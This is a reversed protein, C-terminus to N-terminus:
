VWPMWWFYMQSLNEISTTSSILKQVVGEVNLAHVSQNGYLDPHGKLRKEVRHLIVRSDMKEQKRSWEVLPDHVFSELIGLLADRNEIQTELTVECAKRFVGEVGTVGFADVINQTLRFRVREPVELLEGKDFLCAFDVHVCEGTVTDILLNEGHRDGLGVVHGVVSMVACTRTFATRAEFWQSPVAFQQAFWKHLIPPFHPLIQETFMVNKPTKHLDAREKIEKLQNTSLGFKSKAYLGDIVSRLTALNPVWEIIGSDDSLPLVTFTRISLKRLKGSPTKSLLRNIMASYEMMRSDKRTEDKAKCLFHHVTGASSRMTIRKPKQLSPIVTIEPQISEITVAAAFLAGTDTIPGHPLQIHLMDQTPLIIGTPFKARFGAIKSLTITRDGRQHSVPQSAIAILGHVLDGLEATLKAVTASAKGVSQLIEKMVKSRSLGEQGNTSNVVFYVYWLAQNPYALIVREIITRIRQLAHENRHGIRSVLQPLATMYIHPPIRQLVADVETHINKLVSQALAINRKSNTTSRTVHLHLVHATDLWRTLFKLVTKYVTRHGHCLAQGYSALMKPIYLDYHHLIRRELDEPTTNASTQKADLQALTTVYVSEIFSGLHFYAKEFPHLGIMETFYSEVEQPTKQNTDINWRAIRLLCKCLLEKGAPTASLIQMKGRLNELLAIAERRDGRAYLIKAHSLTSRADDLPSEASVASAQMVASLASPLMGFNRLITGYQMWISATENTKGLIGLIVRHTALVPEQYQPTIEIIKRSLSLHQILKETPQQKPKPAETRGRQERITGITQELDSLIHLQLLYPYTRDYSEMSAASIAPLLMDRVDRITGEVESLRQNANTPIEAADVLPAAALTEQAVTHMSLMVKALSGDFSQPADTCLTDLTDWKSLRWAGQIAFDRLVNRDEDSIAVSSASSAFSHLLNFQGLNRMCTMLSSQYCLNHPDRQLLIENCQLADQWKGSSEYDLAREEETTYSRLSSLGVIGDPEMLEAYVKQLLRVDHPSCWHTSAAEDARRPSTARLQRMYAEAYLVARAPAKISHAAEICVQLPIGGLFARVRSHKKKASALRKQETSDSRAAKAHGDFRSEERDSWRAISDILDFLMQVHETAIDANEMVAFIEKHIDDTDADNCYVVLMHVLYPFLFVCIKSDRKAVNRLSQFVQAYVGTTRACLNIFWLRLWSNFSMGRKYEPVNPSRNHVIKVEYTTQVFARLQAKVEDPLSNWWQSKKADLDALSVNPIDLCVRILSQIAFAARDHIKADSTSHLLRLLQNQLIYSSLHVPHLLDEMRVSEHANDTRVAIQSPAMAGVVGLCSAAYSAIEQTDRTAHLLTTIFPALTEKSLSRVEIQRQSIRAYTSRLYLLRCQASESRQAEICDAILVQISKKHLAKHKGKNFISSVEDSQPFLDLFQELEGANFQRVLRRVMELVTAQYKRDTEWLPCNCFGVLEVLLDRGKKRIIEDSLHSILVEWCQALDSLCVDPFEFPKLLQVKQLITSSLPGLLSLLLRLSLFGSTLAHKTHRKSGGIEERGVGLKGCIDDLIGFAYRSLMQAVCLAPDTSRQSSKRQPTPSITKDLTMLGECLGQQADAFPLYTCEAALAVMNEVILKENQRIFDMLNAKQSIIKNLNSLTDKTTHRKDVSSTVFSPCMISAVIPACYRHCVDAVSTDLRKALFSALDGEQNIAALSLVCDALESLIANFDKDAYDEICKQISQESKKDNACSRLLAVFAPSYRRFISSLTCQLRRTVSKVAFYASARVYTSKTNSAFLVIDAVARTTTSSNQQDLSGCMTGMATETFAENSHMAEICREYIKGFRANNSFSHPCVAISKRLNEDPSSVGEFFISEIPAIDVQINCQYATEIVDLIACCLKSNAYLEKEKGFFAILDELTSQLENPLTEPESKSARPPARDRKRNQAPSRKTSSSKTVANGNAVFSCMFQLWRKFCHLFAIHADAKTTSLWKEVFRFQCGPLTSASAYIPACAISENVHAEQSVESIIQAASNADTQDMVSVLPFSTLLSYAQESSPLRLIPLIANYMGNKLLSFPQLEAALKNYSLTDAAIQKGIATFLIQVNTAPVILCLTEGFVHVLKLESDFPFQRQITFLLAYQVSLMNLDKENYEKLVAANPLNHALKQAFNQMETRRKQLGQHQWLSADTKRTAYELIVELTKVLASFTEDTLFHLYASQMISLCVRLSFDLMESRYPTLARQKEELRRRNSGTTESNSECYLAQLIVLVETIIQGIYALFSSQILHMWMSQYEMVTSIIPMETLPIDTDIVCKRPDLEWDGAQFFHQGIVHVATITYSLEKASTSLERNDSTNEHFFDTSLVITENGFGISGGEDRNLLYVDWLKRFLSDCAVKIHYPSISSNHLITRLLRIANYSVHKEILETFACVFNISLASPFFKQQMTEVINLISSVKPHASELNQLEVQLLRTLSTDVIKRLAKPFSRHLSKALGEISSELIACYSSDAAFYHPHIRVIKEFLAVMKEEGILEICFGLRHGSLLSKFIRLSTHTHEPSAQTTEDEWACELRDTVWLINEASIELSKSGESKMKTHWAEMQKTVEILFRPLGPKKGSPPRSQRKSPSKFDSVQPRAITVSQLSMSLPQRETGGHAKWPSVHYKAQFDTTLAEGAQVSAPSSTRLEKMPTIATTQDKKTAQLRSKASFTDFAITRLSVNKQSPSAQSTGIYQVDDSPADDLSEEEQIAVPKATHHMAQISSFTQGVFKPATKSLLAARVHTAISAQSQMQPALSRLPQHTRPMLPSQFPADLAAPRQVGGAVGGLVNQQPANAYTKTFSPAASRNLPVFQGRREANKQQFHLSPAITQHSTSATATIAPARSLTPAQSLRPAQSGMGHKQSLAGPDRRQENSYPNRSLGTISQVNITPAPRSSFAKRGSVLPQQYLNRHINSQNQDGQNYPQSM